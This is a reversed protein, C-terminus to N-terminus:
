MFAASGVRLRVNEPSFVFKKYARSYKMFFLDIDWEFGMQVRTVVGQPLNRAITEYQILSGAGLSDRLKQVTCLSDVFHM